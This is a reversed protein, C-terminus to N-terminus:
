EVEGVAVLFPQVRVQELQVIRVHLYRTLDRVLSELWLGRVRHVRGKLDNSHGISRHRHRVVVALRQVLLLRVVVFQSFVLLHGAEDLIRVAVLCVLLVRLLVPRDAIRLIPMQEELEVVALLHELRELVLRDVM